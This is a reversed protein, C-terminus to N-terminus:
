ARSAGGALIESRHVPSRGAVAQPEACRERVALLVVLGPLTAVFGMAGFAVAQATGFPEDYLFVACLFQLTPALFQLMGLTSYPILRAAATSLILPIATAAGSMILFM